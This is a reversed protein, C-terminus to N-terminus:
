GRVGASRDVEDLVPSRDVGRVAWARWPDPCRVVISEAALASECEVFCCGGSGTLRAEGFESLWGIAAAVTPHLRRVVQELDNRRLPADPLLPITMPPSDRTLDPAQFVAATNVPIGPDLVVYHREGLEIPTLVEGIGRAFASRGRVFVPVDAGLTLGIAGLRDVGLDTQWLRDLALLVTAADSSGGGLGGGMPVRKDVLLDAGLTQGTEAKLRLAARVALDEASPVGPPGAVRRVEGDPRVRVAVRDGWDLLQFVTELEHYGDARRGTVHLFLNLKAPASFNRWGAVPDVPGAEAAVAWGGAQSRFM